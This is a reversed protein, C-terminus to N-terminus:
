EGYIDTPTIMKLLAMLYKKPLYTNTTYEKQIIETIRLHQYAPPDSNYSSSIKSFNPIPLIDPLDIDPLETIHIHMYVGMNVLMEKFMLTQARM